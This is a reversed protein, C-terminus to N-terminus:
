YYFLYYFQMRDSVITFPDSLLHDLMRLDRPHIQLCDLIKYKDVDLIMEQGSANM